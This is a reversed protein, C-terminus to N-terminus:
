GGVVVRNAIPRGGAAPRVLELALQKLYYSPVVGLLVIDTPTEVATLRRLEPRSSTRLLDQAPWTAPEGAAVPTPPAPTHTLIAPM